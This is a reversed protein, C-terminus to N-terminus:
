LHQCPKEPELDDDEDLWEDIETDRELEALFCTGISVMAYEEPTYEDQTPPIQSKM